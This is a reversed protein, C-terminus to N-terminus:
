RDRPDDVGAAEDAERKLQDIAAGVDEAGDGDSELMADLVARKDEYSMAPDRLVDLPGDFHRYPDATKAAIDGTPKAIPM